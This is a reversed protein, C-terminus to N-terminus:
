DPDLVFRFSSHCANCTRLAELRTAKYADLDGNSLDKEMAAFSARTASSMARFTEPLRDRFGQPAQNKGPGHAGAIRAMTETDMEREAAELREVAELFGRMQALAFQMQEANMPVAERPDNSASQSQSDPSREKAPEAPSWAIYSLVALTIALLGVLLNSHTKSM